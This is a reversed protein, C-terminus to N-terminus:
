IDARKPAVPLGGDHGRGVVPSERTIWEIMMAMVGIVPATPSPHGM